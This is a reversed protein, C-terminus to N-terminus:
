SALQLGGGVNQHTHAIFRAAGKDLENLAASM